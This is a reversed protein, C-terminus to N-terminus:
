DLIETPGRAEQIASIAVFVAHDRVQIKAIKGIVAALRSRGLTDTMSRFGCFAVGVHGTAREATVSPM